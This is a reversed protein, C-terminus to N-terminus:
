PQNGRKKFSVASEPLEVIREEGSTQTIGGVEDFAICDWKGVLGIRRSAINYFLNSVTTHGSSMLISYPSLESYAHSKGTSRSGLEVLNYNKQIFLVFRLLYHLKQKQSLENPEYGASRLLVDTWEDKTFASRAELIEDMDLNPM